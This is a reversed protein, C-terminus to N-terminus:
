RGLWSAGEYFKRREEDEDRKGAQLLERQLQENEDKLKRREM